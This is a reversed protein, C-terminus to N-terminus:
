YIVFSPDGAALLGNLFFTPTSSGAADRELVKDGQHPALRDYSERARDAIVLGDELNRRLYSRRFSGLARGSAFTAGVDSQRCVVARM